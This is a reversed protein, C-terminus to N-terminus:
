RAAANIIERVDRTAAPTPVSLLANEPLGLALLVQADIVQSGQVRALLLSLRKNHRADHDRSAESTERRDEGRGESDKPRRNLSLALAAPELPQHATLQLPQLWVALLPFLALLRVADVAGHDLVRL